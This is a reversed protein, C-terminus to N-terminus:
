STAADIRCRYLIVTDARFAEPRDTLSADVCVIM